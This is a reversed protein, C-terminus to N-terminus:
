QNGMWSIITWDARIPYLATQNNLVDWSFPLLFLSNEKPCVELFRTMLTIAVGHVHPVRRVVLCMFIFGQQGQQVALLMIWSDALQKDSTGCMTSLMDLEQEQPYPKSPVVWIAKESTGIQM